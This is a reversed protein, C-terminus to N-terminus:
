ALAFTPSRRSCGTRCGRRCRSCPAMRIRCKLVPTPAWARSTSSRCFGRARHHTEPGTTGQIDIFDTTPSGVGVYAVQGGPGIGTGVRVWFRLYYNGSAYTPSLTFQASRGPGTTRIANPLTVRLGRSGNHAAQPDSVVTGADPVLVSWPPVLVGSEFDDSFTTGAAARAAVLSLLLGCIRGRGVRM